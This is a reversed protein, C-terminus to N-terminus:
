SSPSASRAARSWTLAVLAGGLVYCAVDHWSFTDGLAIRVLRPARAPIGTLQFLEIAFCIAISGGGITRASPLPRTFALVFGIMVAYAVDGVSKDWLSSGLPVLRSALGVAVAAAVGVAASRRRRARASL